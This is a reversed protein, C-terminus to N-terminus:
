TILGKHLMESLLMYIEAENHPIQRVMQAITDNKQLGQHIQRALPLTDADEWTLVKLNLKFRRQDDPFESRLEKLEDM